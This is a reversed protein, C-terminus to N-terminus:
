PPPGSAISGLSVTSCTRAGAPPGLSTMRLTSAADVTSPAATSGNAIVAPTGSAGSSGAVTSGVSIPRVGSPGTRQPRCTVTVAKSVFGEPSRAASPAVTASSVGGSMSMTAPARSCATEPPSRSGPSVEPCCEQTTLGFLSPPFSTVTVPVPPASPVSNSRASGSDISTSQVAGDVDISEPGDPVVLAEAGRNVNEAVPSAAM